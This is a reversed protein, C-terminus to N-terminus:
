PTSSNLTLAASKPTQSAANPAVRRLQFPASEFVGFLLTSFRGGDKDVQAVIADITPVDYYEVGRGLIYTLLKETLTRYFEVRHKELLAQKLDRVGGFKEGTALEGAADIPQGLEYTRQRGFANFHEMALGPPDMREHCSACKPDERHKALLERQTLQKEDGKPKADELAPVDPPPPAPPAGLINELIWKGRKVPSTRTPNSTVTLVSGMTLVGGRVSDAPLEVRRMDSGKVDVLGYVPALAENVFTYNSQLLELVSRDQTVVHHFYAEAEQKMAARIEPTLETGPPPRPRRGFGFGGRGPPPPTAAAAVAGDPSPPPKEIAMVDASNIPIDLVDRSQLWQGSFNEAFARAKADALMRSVQARFNNRLEGRAALQTLEDDPLSSWLAYSLRAALSYEDLRATPQGAAAPEAKELHFLFRPASLVAVIAQAIGKEFTTGPLSYTREAIAVLADVTDADVPRRYAKAVFRALVERAYARREAAAVPPKERTYFRGHNPHHDWQEKALPGDFIVFLVRYEMKTRLPKLDPYVPTLECSVVHDGADWDFTFTDTLYDMDAWEYEKDLIVKGDAKWVVHAHQPDVPTAEGDIKTNLMLRYQGKKKVKFTHSTTRAQYYSYRAANQTGDATVFDEGVLMQSSMVVTDLPVAQNVATMAGEIFKELRMPSISLVDGINDFGYGVDDPPLMAEAEFNAGILDRLTNRYETRNLRRTTVRGPDPRAPDLAFGHTVIWQELSKQETATLATEGPPPMIHSRTNRLVKLWLEPNRAIQDTTTLADFALGGKKAGDGHCEYCRERLIPSVSKKFEALAPNEAAPKVDAAARAAVTLLACLASTLLSKNM